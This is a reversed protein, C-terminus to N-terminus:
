HDGFSFHMRHSPSRAIFPATNFSKWNLIMGHSRILFSGYLHSETESAKQREAWNRMYVNSSMNVTNMRIFPSPKFFITSINILPYKWLNRSHFKNYKSQLKVSAEEEIDVRCDIMNTRNITYRWCSWLGNNSDTIVRNVSASLGNCHRWLSRSTTEFWWSWSQKRLRKNLCLECFVDFSRTVPRQAPIEGTIPSNGACLALLASFIEM